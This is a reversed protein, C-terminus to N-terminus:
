PASTFKPFTTGGNPFILVEAKGPFAKQAQSLADFLTNEFTVFPLNNKDDEARPTITKPQLYGIV